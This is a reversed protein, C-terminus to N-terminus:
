DLNLEYGKAVRQEEIFQLVEKLQRVRPGAIGAIELSMNDPVVFSVGALTMSLDTGISVLAHMIALYLKDEPWARTKAEQLLQEFTLGDDM